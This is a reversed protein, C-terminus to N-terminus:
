GAQGGCRRYTRDHYASLEAHDHDQLRSGTSDGTMTCPAAACMWGACDRLQWGGAPGMVEFGRGRPDHEMVANGAADVGFTRSGIRHWSPTACPISSTRTVSGPRYRGHTTARTRWPM